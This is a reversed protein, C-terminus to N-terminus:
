KHLATYFHTHALRNIETGGSFYQTLLNVYAVAEEM